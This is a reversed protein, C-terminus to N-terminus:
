IIWHQITNIICIIIVLRNPWSLSYADERPHPVNFCVIASAQGQPRERSINVACIGMVSLPHSQGDENLAPPADTILRCM